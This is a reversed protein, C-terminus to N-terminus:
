KETIQYSFNEVKESSDFKIVVTIVKKLNKVQSSSAIDSSYIGEFKECDWGGGIGGTVVGFGSSNYTSINDLSYYIWMKQGKSDTREVNPKGLILLIESEPTGIKIDNSVLKLNKASCSFSIQLFVLFILSIFKKM